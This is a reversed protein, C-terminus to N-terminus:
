FFTLINKKVLRIALSQAPALGKRKFNSINKRMILYALRVHHPARVVGPAQGLHDVPPLVLVGDLLLEVDVILVEVPPAM